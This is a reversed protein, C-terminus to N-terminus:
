RKGGPVTWGERRHWEQWAAVHAPNDSRGITLRGQEDFWNLVRIPRPQPTTYSLQIICALIAITYQM